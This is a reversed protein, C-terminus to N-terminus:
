AAAGKTWEYLRRERLQLAVVWATFTAGVFWGIDVAWIVGDIGWHRSLLAASPVRAVVYSVITCLLPVTTRGLGNLFGHAVAMLTFLPFFPYTIVIYRDLIAAVATSRTFLAGIDAHLAIVISMVAFTAWISCLLSLRVARRIETVEGAGRRQAVLVTVAGSLDLFVRSTVTELRAAISIAALAVAGFPAVLSTLVFNGLALFVFQIGMPYGLRLSGKMQTVCSAWSARYRHIAYHHMALAAGAFSSLASAGVTGLAAGRVGLGCAGVLLWALAINLVSSGALVPMILRPRGMGRFVATLAGQCFIPLLGIGLTHLYVISGAATAEPIGIATLMADAGLAILAICLVSWILVFAALALIVAQRTGDEERGTLTAIRITFGNLLGLFVSSVLYYVPQAGGVAALGSVGVYRGVIVSDAILYSQQVLNVLTM